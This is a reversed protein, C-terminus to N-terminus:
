ADSFSRYTGFGGRTVGPGLYVRNAGACDEQHYIYQGRDSHNKAWVHPAGVGINSCGPGEVVPRNLCTAGTNCFRLYGPPAAAASSMAPSFSLAAAMATMTVASKLMIRIM